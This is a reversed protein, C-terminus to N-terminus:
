DEKTIKNKIKNDSKRWAKILNIEKNIMDIYNAYKNIDLRFVEMMIQFIDFLQQCNGIALNQFQRRQNCEEITTPYISNAMRINQTLNSCLEILKGRYFDIIWLPYEGIISRSMNYKELIDNITKKDEALMKEYSNTYKINISKEKLGMDKLLFKQVEISLNYANTFVEFKSQTRKNKLVSM